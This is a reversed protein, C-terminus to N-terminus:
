KDNRRRYNSQVRQVTSSSVNKLNDHREFFTREQATPMIIGSTNQVGNSNLGSMSPTNLTPTSAPEAVPTPASTSAPTSAPASETASTSAPASTSTSASTSGSETASTTGGSASSSSKGGIKTLTDTDGDYEYQGSIAALEGAKTTDWPAGAENRNEIAQTALNSIRAADQGGIVGETMLRHVERLTGGKMGVLEQTNTVYNDLVNHANNGQMIWSHYSSTGATGKNIQSAFEFGFPNSMRYNGSNEGTAIEKAISRLMNEDYNDANNIVDQMFGAATDKRRGAIRAAAVAGAKNGSKMYDNFMALLKTDNEGNRTSDNILTMYNGMEEGEAKKTQAIVAADYGVGMLSEARRNTDQNKLYQSRYAAANRRGGSLFAGVTKSLRTSEGKANVGAKIRVQREMGRNQLNKYADSGRLAGTARKKASDGMGTLIGGVKGMASFSGKLVMPIFFIPVVGVVMATIWAFFGDSTTLLLRSVYDGAGVLLGAIPYVLLLGEFFKWWKDSLKKTNPLMYTVVALPSIAVLVIVAAKRAALLIFLFFISVMVGFIGVLLSLLIAPNMWIAGVMGVVAGAVGVGALVSTINFTTAGGAFTSNEIAKLELEGNPTLADSLGKFMMMLGNGLINSLDVLVMCILYSLNILIAAVILRPLIKKIGYNDIGVGTLQSFIVVLFLLIFLVNAIDRFAEWANRVSGNESSNNFLSPEVTLSPEVYDEYLGEATEGMWTLMPCVIWGLSEAGKSNRCTEEIKEKDEKDGVSMGSTNLKSTDIKKMRKLISEFDVTKLAQRGSWDGTKIVNFQGDVDRWGEIKCWKGGNFVGYDSGLGSVDDHCSETDVVVNSNREMVKKIYYELVDYREQESFGVDSFNEVGAFYKLADNAPKDGDKIWVSGLGNIDGDKESLSTTFNNVNKSLGTNQNSITINRNKLGNSLCAQVDSFKVSKLDTIMNCQVRELTDGYCDSAYGLLRCGNAGNFRVQFETGVGGSPAVFSLEGTVDQSTGNIGREYAISNLNKNYLVKEGDVSFCIENTDGMHSANDYGFGVKLCKKKVNQNSATYGMQSLDLAKGYLDFLGKISGGPGSYGYFLQKCSVAPIDQTLGNGLSLSPVLITDEGTRKGKDTFLSDANLEGGTADVRPLMYEDGYCTTLGNLLVKKLIGTEDIAMVNNNSNVLVMCLTILGAIFFLGKKIITGM